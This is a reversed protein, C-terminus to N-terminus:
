LGKESIEDTHELSSELVWWEFGNDDIVKYWPGSEITAHFRVPPVGFCRIVRQGAEFESAVPKLDEAKAM